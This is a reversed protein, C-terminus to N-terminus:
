CSTTETFIIYTGATPLGFFCLNRPSASELVRRARHNLGMCRWAISWLSGDYNNVDRVEVKCLGQTLEGPNLGVIWNAGNNPGWDWYFLYNKAGFDQKYM